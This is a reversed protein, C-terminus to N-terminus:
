VRKACVPGIGNAVSTADKLFAGCVCCVGYRIGFAKAEELTLRQANGMQRILGAEYRFEWQVVADLDTLREGGIPVLRKAYFGGSTKSQQVKFLSGDVDRYMGVQVVPATTTAVKPMALLQEILQSASSKSISSVDLTYAREAALRTIFAVQKTTAPTVTMTPM